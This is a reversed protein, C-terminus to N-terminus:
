TLVLHVYCIAKAVPTETPFWSAFTEAMRRRARVHNWSPSGNSRRHFILPEYQWRATVALGEDHAALQPMIQAAVVRVDYGSEALISADRVLRPNASPQGHSILCLRRMLKVPREASSFHHIGLSAWFWLSVTYTM